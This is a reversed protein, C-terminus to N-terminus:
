LTMAAPSSEGEGSFTGKLLIYGGGGGGGGAGRSSDSGDDGDTTAGASGNGGNGASSSAGSGGGAPVSNLTGDDGDQGTIPTTGSRTGGEGGGGGNATLFGDSIISPATVSIYGGSGGGGGGAQAGGGRGGSGTARIVGQSHIHVKTASVLSVAGGGAGAKGGLGGAGIATENGGDHGPCGGRAYSPINQVAGALGPSARNSGNTDGEGGDGGLGVYSGGGGGAAGGSDDQPTTGLICADADHGAGGQGQRRSGLDLMGYIEIPNAAVIRLPRNGKAQYRIGLAVEFSEVLILCEDRGNPQTVTRCRPDNDTYITTDQAIQLPGDPDCYDVEDFPCPAADFRSADVLGNTSGADPDHTSNPTTTDFSCVCLLLSSLLIWGGGRCVSWM